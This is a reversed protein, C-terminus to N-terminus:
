FILACEIPRGVTVHDCSADVKTCMRLQCRFYVFSNDPYKFVLASTYALTLDNNYQINPMLLADLTCRPWVTPLLIRTLSRGTTTSLTRRAVVPMRLMVRTCWCATRMQSSPHQIFLFPARTKGNGTCQWRHYVTDGVQASRVLPGNATARRVSYECEPLPSQEAVISTALASVDLSNATV